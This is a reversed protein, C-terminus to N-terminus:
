RWGTMFGYFFVRSRASLFLGHGDDSNGPAGLVAAAFYRLFHRLFQSVLAEGPINKQLTRFFEIDLLNLENPGNLVGGRDQIPEGPLFFLVHGINPCREQFMQSLVIHDVM